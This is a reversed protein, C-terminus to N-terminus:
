LIERAKELGLFILWASMTLGSAAAGAQLTRKQEATIRVRISEQKKEAKKPAGRKKAAM